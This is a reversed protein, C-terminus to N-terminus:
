APGAPAQRDDPRREWPECPMPHNPCCRAATWWSRSTIYAAEETAFFLAAYGIEDVTGLRGLPIAATMGAAYEKGMDDLGETVVNGPLVANVTIGSPALEIAASRM